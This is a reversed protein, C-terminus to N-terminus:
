PYGRFPSFVLPIKRQVYNIGCVGTPSPARLARPSAFIQPLGGISGRVPKIEHIM